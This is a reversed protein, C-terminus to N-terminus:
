VMKLEEDPILTQVGADANAVDSEDSGVSIDHCRKLTIEAVRVGRFTTRISRCALENTDQRIRFLDNTYSWFRYQSSARYADDEVM